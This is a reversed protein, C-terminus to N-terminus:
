KKDAWPDTPYVIKTSRDIGADQIARITDEATEIEPYRESSMVIKRNEGKLQIRFQKEEANVIKFYM